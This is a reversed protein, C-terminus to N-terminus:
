AGDGARHCKCGDYRQLGTRELTVKGALLLMAATMLTVLVRLFWGAAKLALPKLKTFLGFRVDLSFLLFVACAVLEFGFLLVYSDKLVVTNIRRLMVVSLNITFATALFVLVNGIVARTIM